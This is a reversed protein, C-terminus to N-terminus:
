IGAGDNLEPMEAPSLRWIEVEWGLWRFRDARQEVAAYNDGGLDHRIVPPYYRCDPGSRQIIILPNM